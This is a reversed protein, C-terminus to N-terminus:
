PGEERVKEITVFVRYARDAGAHRLTAEPGEGMVQLRRNGAGRGSSVTVFFPRTGPGSGVLSEARATLLASGRETEITVDEPDRLPILAGEELRYAAFRVGARAAGQPEVRVRVTGGPLARAGGPGGRVDAQGEVRVEYAPLGRDPRGALFLAILTMAAVALGLALLPVRSRRPSGAFPIGALEALRRRGRRSGALSWEIRTEELAPLERARYARLVADEPAPGDDEAGARPLDWLLDDPESGSM